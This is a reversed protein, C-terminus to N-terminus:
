AVARGGLVDLVLSGVLETYVPPIADSAGNRDMWPVGMADRREQIRPAEGFRDGYTDVWDKGPSHGAVPLAPDQHNHSPTLAFLPPDTEFWRPRRVQLGRPSRLAFMCGCLELDRRVPAGPVNEIVWPRGTAALAVRTPAILDPHTEALGPRCTTAHSFRQCPPSAHFADFERWHATLYDIADGQHFEFPYRPQPEIDVGVVEFGAAHYGAGAGGQGCYLDLLRPPM